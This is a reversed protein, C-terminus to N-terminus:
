KTKRNLGTRIDAADRDIVDVIARLITRNRGGIDFVVSKINSM